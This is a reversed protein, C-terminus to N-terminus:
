DAKFYVQKNGILENIIGDDAPPFQFNRMQEPYIWRFDHCDIKCPDGSKWDCLYFHLSLIRKPYPHDIKRLLRDPVIVVGLEEQVERVLCDELSENECRKGGPFEWYGGLHDDPKRQAILLQDNRRIIACGVEIIPKKASFNM